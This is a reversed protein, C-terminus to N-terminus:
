RRRYASAQPLVLRSLARRHALARHRWYNRELTLQHSATAAPGHWYSEDAPKSHAPAPPKDGQPREANVLEPRSSQPM